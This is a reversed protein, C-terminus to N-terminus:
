ADDLAAITADIDAIRRTLSEVTSAREVEDLHTMTGARCDELAKCLIARDHRLRRSTRRPAM